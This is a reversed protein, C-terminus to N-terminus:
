NDEEGGRKPSNPVCSPRIERTLSSTPQSFM